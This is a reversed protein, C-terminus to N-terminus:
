RDGRRSGLRAAALFVILALVSLGLVGAVLWGATM